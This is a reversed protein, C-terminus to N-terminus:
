QSTPPFFNACERVRNAHPLEVTLAVAEAPFGNWLQFTDFMLIRENKVTGHVRMM